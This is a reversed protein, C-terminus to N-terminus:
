NPSLNGEPQYAMTPHDARFARLWGDIGNKIGHKWATRMEDAQHRLRKNKITGSLFQDIGGFSLHLKCLIM